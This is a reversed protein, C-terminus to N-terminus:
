DDANPASGGSGGRLKAKLKALEKRAPKWYM